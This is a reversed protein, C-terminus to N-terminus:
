HWHRSTEQRREFISWLASVAARVVPEFRGAGEKVTGTVDKVDDLIANVKGLAPTVQQAELREVARTARRFVVMAFVGLGVVVVAELVSVFALVGLFLNTTDLQPDM